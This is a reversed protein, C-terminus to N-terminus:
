KIGIKPLLEKIMYFSGCVVTLVNNNKKFENFSKSDFKCASALENYSCSNVNNFEYFFINDNPTFLNKMMQSYNKNKLCGFIFNFKQNPFYYDLSERLAKTGNPNHAGDVLVNHEKIYQFRCPHKVNALGCEIMKKSISFDNKNLIEVAKLVLALNEKQYFGKLASKEQLFIPAEEAKLLQSSKEDAYNKIIEYGFNNESIVVPCNTKIIGAKEYAIKEITNGLRETHDFDIHTIISCINQEIVNTADLRGGLGTELIVIDVNNQAFYQFALVTLIEFETLHIQNKDALMIIENLGQAFTEREIEVDNIKIRETYEFVHPSTFLGIRLSSKNVYGKQNTFNQSALHIDPERGGQPPPDPHPAVKNFIVDLVGEINTFIDTNYFRLIDFGANNIFEDRLKDYQLNEQKLHQSGDLEIVLKKEFSVFDVIYNGIPSQKRFKVGNLQKKRLYYWLTNEADTMNKRLEKAYELTQKSYLRAIPSYGGGLGEGRSPSPSTLQSRQIIASLMSCVSGKGNTGAVHICKLKKEPNGLINLVAQVRDLGLNIYFKGQSTLVDIAKTYATESRYPLLGVSSKECKIKGNM